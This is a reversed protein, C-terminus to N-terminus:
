PRRIQRCLRRKKISSEKGYNAECIEDNIPKLTDTSKNGPFLTCMQYSLLVCNCPTQFIPLNTRFIYRSMKASWRRSYGLGRDRTATGIEVNFCPESKQCASCPSYPYHYRNFKDIAAEELPKFVKIKNYHMRLTKHLSKVEMWTM